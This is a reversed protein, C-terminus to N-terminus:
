SGARELARQALDAIPGGPDSDIASQLASRAATLDGQYLRLLGLHYLTSPRNPALDHARTLIRDAMALDGSLLYCYGLTDWGAPDQPALATANRAAPLGITPIQLEHRMSYSALLLWFGPQRPAMDTATRFAVLASDTDGLADYTAGLEAAIAPDDPSLRAATELETLAKSPEGSMRWHMGLFAHPQSAEPAAAVAAELDSLGNGGIRDLCLGLYARAEVYDPQVQLASEFAWSAFLWESNQALVQGVQALTYAPSAELRAEDIAHVLALVLADGGPVAQDAAQLRVEAAEPDRTAVTIGLDRLAKADEPVLAVLSMLADEYGRPDRLSLYAAALDRVHEPSDPCPSPFSQWASLAQAPDGKAFLADGRLCTREPNPGALGEALDLHRLAADMEDAAFALAAAQTHLAPDFPQLALADDLAALAAAPRGDQQAVASAMLSERLLGSSPSPNLLALLALSALIQWIRANVWEPM